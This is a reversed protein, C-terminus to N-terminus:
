KSFIGNKLRGKRDREIKDCAKCQNSFGDKSKTKKVFYDGTLLLTRGCTRCTKWNEEFFLDQIMEFHRTAARAIAPAIKQRFITSIYNANYTKGFKENVIDAINQNKFHEIKLALILEQSESLNAKRHYFDWTRLFNQTQADAHVDEGFERLHQILAIVHAPDRFDFSPGAGVEDSDCWLKHSIQSLEDESFQSPNLNDGFIKECLNDEYWLDFPLVKIEAGFDIPATPEPATSERALHVPAYLDRYSFQQRRLEVLLHKSKLYQYPEMANAALELEGKRVDSIRGCLEARIPKSRKSHALEYSQLQFELEDIQVWLRELEELLHPPACKRAQARSFTETRARYISRESLLHLQSEMFTPSEKLADLSEIKQADWTKHKTELNFDGSQRGNQGNRDQGWLIYDACTELESSSPNRFNTLYNQIYTSREQDSSLSFDLNLRNM